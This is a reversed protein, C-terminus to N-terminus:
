TDAIYDQVLGKMDEIVETHEPSLKDSRHADFLSKMIDNLRESIRFRLYEDENIVANQLFALIEDRSDEVSYHEKVTEESLRYVANMANM